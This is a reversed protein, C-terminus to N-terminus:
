IYPNYYPYNEKRCKEMLEKKNPDECQIKKFEHYAKDEKGDWEQTGETGLHQAIMGPIIYNILGLEKTVREARLGWEVDEWGYLGFDERLYGIQHHLARSFIKAEIPMAQVIFRDEHIECEQTGELDPKRGRYREPVHEIPKSYCSIIGTNHIFEIHDIWTKLWNEPMLRDCGTIVIYDGTAISIGRNYGKAVGLNSQNLIKIDALSNIFSLDNLHVNQTGNDVWIIENLLSKKDGCVKYNHALAQDVIDFRNHTLIVWSIKM